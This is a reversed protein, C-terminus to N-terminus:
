KSHRIRPDILAVILDVLLNVVLFVCGIILVVACMANLDKSLMANVGYRSLGPWNFIQEVLFANGMMAAFDLGMVTVVSGASPKMLYKGMLRRKPIGYSKSVDMYEKTMNETLANRLMRANQFMGGLSLAFAPLLLHLFADWAVVGRGELLADVMYFGTVSAPPTIGSSLRGLVPIIKWINGFLLLLLIAVVFAPIAIGTYALFRVASDLFKDRHRAAMQGLSIAGLCMFVGAVLMLELTAPLFQAVDASVSRRTVLSTGFDGHFVDRLWFVYQKYVPQDMYLEKNLADVAEQTARPGLALRGPDGPVVRSLLFIMISVGFIVFIGQLLRKLIYRAM